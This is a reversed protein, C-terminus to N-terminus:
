TVTNNINDSAPLVHNTDDVALHQAAEQLSLSVPVWVESTERIHGKYIPSCM